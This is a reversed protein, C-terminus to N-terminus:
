VGKEQAARSDTVAQLARLDNAAQELAPLYPHRELDAAKVEDRIFQAYQDLYDAAEGVSGAHNAPSAALMASWAKRWTDYGTRKDGNYSDFVDWMAETPEVPVLKWGEGSTLGELPQAADLCARARDRFHDQAYEPLGDWTQPDDWDRGVLWMAKAGREVAKEGAETRDVPPPSAALAHKLRAHAPDVHGMFDRLTAELDGELWELDDLRDSLFQAAERLEEGGRSPPVREFMIQKSPDCHRTGEYAAQITYRGAEAAAKTYGNGGARWYSQWEGSWILCADDAFAAAITPTM